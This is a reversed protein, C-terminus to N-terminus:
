GGAPPTPPKQGVWVLAQLQAVVGEIVKPALKEVLLDYDIEVPQELTDQVEDVTQKLLDLRGLLPSLTVSGVPPLKKVFTGVPETQSIGSGPDGPDKAKFRKGSGAIEEWVENLQAAQTSDMDEGGAEYALVASTLTDGTFHRLHWPEPQPVVTFEWSWGYEVAHTQLWALCDPQLSVIRGNLWQALDGAIGWGHNSHGPCAATAYPKGTAPNTKLWYSVGDCVQRQNGTPQDDYRIDHVAQQVELPRYSDYRSTMVLIWGGAAYAGACLAQWSRVSTDTLLTVPPGGGQGPITTLIAPDLEGNSQGDLASPRTVPQVPFAM